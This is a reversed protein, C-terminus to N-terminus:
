NDKNSVEKFEKMDQWTQCDILANDLAKETFYSVESGQNNLVNVLYHKDGTITIVKKIPILRVGMTQNWHDIGFIVYEALIKEEKM